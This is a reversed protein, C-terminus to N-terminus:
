LLRGASKSRGVRGVMPKENENPAEKSWYFRTMNGNRNVLATAFTGCDVMATLTRLAASRGLKIGDVELVYNIYEGVWFADSPIVARAARFAAVADFRRDRIVEKTKPM